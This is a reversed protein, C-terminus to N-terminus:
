WVFGFRDFGLGFAWSIFSRFTRPIFRNPRVLRSRIAGPGSRGVALLAWGFTALARVSMAARARRMTIGFSGMAVGFPGLAFALTVLCGPLFAGALRGGLLLALERGFGFRVAGSGDGFRSLVARRYRRLGGLGGAVAGHLVARRL